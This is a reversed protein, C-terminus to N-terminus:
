YMHVALVHVLGAFLLLYIVPVHGVRWLSYLKKYANYRALRTLMNLYTRLIKKEKQSFQLSAAAEPMDMTLTNSQESSVSAPQLQCIQFYLLKARIGVVFAVIFALLVYKPTAFATLMFGKLREEIQGAIDPKSQLLQEDLIIHLQKLQHRTKALDFNVQSYLYRGAVGSLAVLLMSFFAVGGNISEINFRSHIVILAPAFLGVFMHVGFWVRLNGMRKLWSFRKRMSYLFQLLMLIGGVLGIDYIFDPENSLYEEDWLFWTLLLAAILLGVIAVAVNAEKSFRKNDEAVVVDPVSDGKLIEAAVKIRQQINEAM